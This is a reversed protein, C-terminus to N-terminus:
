AGVVLFKQKDVRYHLSDKPYGKKNGLSRPKQKPVSYLWSNVRNRHQLWKTLADSKNKGDFTYSGSERGYKCIYINFYKM